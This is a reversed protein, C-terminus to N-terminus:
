LSKMPLIIYYIAAIMFPSKINHLSHNSVSGKIKQMVTVDIKQLSCFGIAIIENHCQGCILKVPIFFM